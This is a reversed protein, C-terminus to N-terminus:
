SFSPVTLKCIKSINNHLVKPFGYTIQQWNEFTKNINFNHKSYFLLFKVKYFKEKILKNAPNQSFWIEFVLSYNFFLLFKM